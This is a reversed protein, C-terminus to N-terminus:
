QGSLQLTPLDRHVTSSAGAAPKSAPKKPTDDAKLSQDEPLHKLVNAAHVVAEIFKSHLDSMAQAYIQQAEDPMEDPDVLGLTKVMSDEFRKAATQAEITLSRIAQFKKGEKLLIIKKEVMLSVLRQLKEETLAM